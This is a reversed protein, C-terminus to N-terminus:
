FQKELSNVDGVINRQEEVDRAFKRLQNLEEESQVKGLKLSKIKENVEQILNGESVSFFNLDQKSLKHTLLELDDIRANSPKEEKWNELASFLIRERDIFDEINKVM